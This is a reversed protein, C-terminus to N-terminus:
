LALVIQAIERHVADQDRSADVLRFRGPEGQALTLYGQRVREHFALEEKEFRDEPLDEPRNRIRKWARKLGLEVPLDLVLTLDPKLGGLVIRHIEQILQLDFGRAYGQYVTTADAFRDSVVM